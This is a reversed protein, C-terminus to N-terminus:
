HLGNQPAANSATVAGQMRGQNLPGLSTVELTANLISIILQRMPNIFKSMKLQKVDFILKNM